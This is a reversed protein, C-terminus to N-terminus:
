SLFKNHNARIIDQLSEEPQAKDQAHSNAWALYMRVPVRQVQSVTGFIGIEAIRAPISDWDMPKSKGGAQKEEKKFFHPYTAQLYEVQALWYNIVYYQYAPNMKALKNAWLRRASRSANPLVGTDELTHQTETTDPRLIAALLSPLDPETKLKSLEKEITLYQGLTMDAANSAPLRWRQWGAWLVPVVPIALPSKLIWGVCPELKQLVEEKPISYFIRARWPLLVRLLRIRTVKQGHENQESLVKFIQKLKSRPVEEWTEPLHAVMRRKKIISAFIYWWKNAPYKVTLTAIRM